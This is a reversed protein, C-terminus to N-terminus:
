ASGPGAIGKPRYDRVDLCADYAARDLRIWDTRDVGRRNRTTASHPFASAVKIWRRQERAVVRIERAVEAFDQDQSFLVAVDYVKRRALRIVDLAIRVDIGKEEWTLFTHTSGDPLRVVRNRYRLPRVFIDVGQRGLHAVKSTWFRHRTSDAAPSPIGTYFHVEVLEWGARQCVLRSLALVDYNPYTYGFSERAAHFLNQGDVLTDARKRSPERAM